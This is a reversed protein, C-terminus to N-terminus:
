CQMQQSFEYVCFYLGSVELILPFTQVDLKFFSIEVSYQCKSEKPTKPWASFAISQLLNGGLGLFFFDAWTLKILIM